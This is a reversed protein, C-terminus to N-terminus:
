WRGRTDSRGGRCKRIKFVVVIIEALDKETEKSPAANRERADQLLLSCFVFSLVPSEVVEDDFM